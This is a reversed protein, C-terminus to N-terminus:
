WRREAVPSATRQQDTRAQAAWARLDQLLSYQEEYNGASRRNVKLNNPPRSTHIIVREGLGDHIIPMRGYGHWAIETSGPFVSDLFVVVREGPEARVGDCAWTPSARYTVSSYPKGKWVELVKARATKHWFLPFRPYKAALARVIEGLSGTPPKLPDVREEQVIGVVVAEAYMQNLDPLGVEAESPLPSFAALLCSFFIVAVSVKWLRAIWREM